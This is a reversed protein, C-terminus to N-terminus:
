SIFLTIPPVPAPLSLKRAIRELTKNGNIVSISTPKIILARYSPKNTYIIIKDKTEIVNYKKPIVLKEVEM